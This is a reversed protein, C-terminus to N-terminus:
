GNHFQLVSVGRIKSLDKSSIMGSKEIIKIREDTYRKSEGLNEMFSENILQFAIAYDQLEAMVRGMDDTRRQKQHITTMTKVVSLVRKFGRRASIPLGVQM